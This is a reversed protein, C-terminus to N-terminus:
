AGAGEETGAAASLLVRLCASALPSDEPNADALNALTKEDDAAAAELVWDAWCRPWDPALDLEDGMGRPFVEANRALAMGALKRVAATLDARSLGRLIEVARAPDGDSTLGAALRAASEAHATAESAM